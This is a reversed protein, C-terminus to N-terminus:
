GLVVLKASRRIGRSSLVFDATFFIRLLRASAPNIRAAHTVSEIAYAPVPPAAGGVEPLVHTVSPFILPRPAVNWVRACCAHDAANVRSTQPFTASVADPLLM